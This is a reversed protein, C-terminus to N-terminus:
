CEPSCVFMEWCRLCKDSLKMVRARQLHGKVCACMQRRFPVMDDMKIVLSRNSVCGKKGANVIAKHQQASVIDICRLLCSGSMNTDIQM